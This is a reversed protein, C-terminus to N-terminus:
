LQVIPNKASTKSYFKRLEEIESGNWEGHVAQGKRSQSFTKREM